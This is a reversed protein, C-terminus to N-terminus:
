MWRFVCSLQSVRPWGEELRNFFNQRKRQSRTKNKDRGIQKESQNKNSGKPRHEGPSVPTLQAESVSIVTFLLSVCNKICYIVDCVPMLNTLAMHHQTQRTGPPFM